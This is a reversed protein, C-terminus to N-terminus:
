RPSVLRVARELPGPVTTALWELDARAALGVTRSAVLVLVAFVAAAALVGLLGGVAAATAAAAGGAVAAAALTILLRRPRLHLAVGRRRTHVVLAVTSVTQAGSTAIVAGTTGLFPILGAALGVDVVAALGGALLVPRLQGAGTWFTSCLQGVPALVLLVSLLRVLTAAEQFESGYVVPVLAAGVSAVGAALVLDISVVVRAAHGMMDTVSAPERAYRSAIAPAAAGILAGSLTTALGVVSFAVSYMAVTRADAFVDLFVLELRREVIQSILVSAAILGWISAVPRWAPRAHGPVPWGGSRKDARRLVLLLCVAIVLQAVFVGSIGAGAYIAVIGAVPSLAQAVLRRSASPGWGRRAVDRSAHAWGISDVLATAAALFWLVQLVDRTLGVSVMLVATLVGGGVHAAYSWRSVWALRPGDGVGGAAAMVQVSALTFSYILVSVMTSAVYAVVSQEGLVEAGLERSIVVSLVLTGFM